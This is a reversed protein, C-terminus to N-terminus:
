CTLVDEIMDEFAVKVQDLNDFENSKIKGVIWLVKMIEMFLLHKGSQRAILHENCEYFKVVYDKFTANLEYGLVYEVDILDQETIM